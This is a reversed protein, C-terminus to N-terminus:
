PINLRDTNDNFKQSAFKKIDLMPEIGSQPINLRGANDNFKQYAFKKIDLMPEVLFGKRGEKTKIM